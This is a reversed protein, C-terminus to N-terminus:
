LHRDGCSRTSTSWDRAVGDTTSGCAAKPSGSGFPATRSPERAAPRPIRGALRSSKAERAHCLSLPSAAAPRARSNTARRSRLRRRTGSCAWGSSTTGFAGPSHAVLARVISTRWASCSEAAHPGHRCGHRPSPASTGSTCVARRHPRSGDWWTHWPRIRVTPGTRSRRQPCKRHWSECVIPTIHARAFDAGHRWAM